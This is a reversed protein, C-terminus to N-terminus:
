HGQPETLALPLLETILRGSLTALYSGSSPPRSLLGTIYGPLRVSRVSSLRYTMYM